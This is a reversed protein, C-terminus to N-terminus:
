GPLVLEKVPDGEATTVILRQGKREAELALRVLGIGLRLIETMSRKSDKALNVLEAHARDSLVFNVRKGSLASTTATMKELAGKLGDERAQEAKSGGQEVWSVAM